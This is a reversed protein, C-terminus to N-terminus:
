SLPLTTTHYLTNIGVLPVSECTISSLPLSGDSLAPGTQRCGSPATETMKDNSVYWSQYKFPNFDDLNKCGSVHAQLYEIESQDGNIPYMFEAPAKKKRYIELGGAVVM